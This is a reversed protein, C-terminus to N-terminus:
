NLFSQPLLQLSFYFFIDFLLLILYKEYQSKLIKLFPMGIKNFYANFSTNLKFKKSTTEWAVQIKKKSDFLVGDLDFIIFTKKNFDKM